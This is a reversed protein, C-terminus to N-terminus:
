VSVFPYRNCPSYRTETYQQAFADYVASFTGNDMALRNHLKKIVQFLVISRLGNTSNFLLINAYVYDLLFFHILKIFFVIFFLFFSFISAFDM